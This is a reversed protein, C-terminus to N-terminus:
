IELAQNEQVPAQHFAHKGLRNRESGVLQKEGDAGGQNEFGVHPGVLQQYRGDRHHIRDHVQRKDDSAFFIM